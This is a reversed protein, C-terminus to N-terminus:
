VHKHPRRWHYCALTLVFGALVIHFAAPTWARFWAPATEVTFGIVIRALSGTLYLGGSWALASGTRPSPTLKGNQVRRSVIAMLGLIVLQVPLLLYYPLGSGQFSNFPPLFPQPAWCQLAQGFVRTAFLGSLLWLCATYGVGFSTSRPRM